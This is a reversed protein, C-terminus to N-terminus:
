SQQGRLVCISSKIEVNKDSSMQNKNLEAPPQRIPKQGIPNTVPRDSASAVKADLNSSIIASSSADPIGTNSLLYDPVKKIITVGGQRNKTYCSLLCKLEEERRQKRRRADEQAQKSSSEQFQRWVHEPIGEPRPTINNDTTIDSSNGAMAASIRTGWRLRWFYTPVQGPQIGCVHLGEICRASAEPFILLRRVTRYHRITRRHAGSLLGTLGQSSEPLGLDLREPPVGDPLLSRLTARPDAPQRSRRWTAKSVSPSFCLLNSFYPLPIFSFFRYLLNIQNSQIGEIPWSGEYKYPPITKGGQILRSRILDWSILMDRGARMQQITRYRRVIWGLGGSQGTVVNM